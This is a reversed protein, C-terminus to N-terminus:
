FGFYNTVEGIWFRFDFRRKRVHTFIWISCDLVQIWVRWIQHKLLVRRVDKLSNSICWRRLFLVVISIVFCCEYLIPTNECLVSMNEGYMAINRLQIKNGCIVSSFIVTNQWLVALTRGHIQSMLPFQHPITCTLRPSFSSNMLSPSIVDWSPSTGHKASM